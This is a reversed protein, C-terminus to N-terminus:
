KEAYMGATEPPSAVPDTVIQHVFEAGLTGAYGLWSV